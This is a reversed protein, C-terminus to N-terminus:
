NRCEDPSILNEIKGPNYTLYLVKGGREIPCFAATFFLIDTRSPNEVIRDLRVKYTTGVSLERSPVLENYGPIHEGYKLCQGPTLIIPNAKPAKEISWLTKRAGDELFSKSIRLSDIAVDIIEDDPICISLQGDITKISADGKMGWPTAESVDTLGFPFLLILLLPKMYNM